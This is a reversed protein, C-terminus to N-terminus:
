IGTVTFQKDPNWIVLDGRLGPTTNGVRMQLGAHKATNASMYDSLDSISLGREKCSTWFLSLGLQLGAIGGWAKMFDGTDPCKLGATCPSHDSVVMSISLDRVAAWLEEQNQKTRIPPCCKYETAGDPVNESNLTLYHHCTEVTLPAGAKQAERILPLATAASLHVIHSRVNFRTISITSM